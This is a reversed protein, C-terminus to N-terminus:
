LLCCCGHFAAIDDTHPDGLTHTRAHSHAHQVLLPKHWECTFETAQRRDGGGLTQSNAADLVQVCGGCVITTHIPRPKAHTIGM